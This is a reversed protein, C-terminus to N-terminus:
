FFDIIEDIKIGNVLSFGGVVKSSQYKNMVHPILRYRQFFNLNLDLNPDFRVTKEHETLRFM